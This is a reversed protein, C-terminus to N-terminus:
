QRADPLTPKYSSRVPAPFTAHPLVPVASFANELKVRGPLPSNAPLEFAGVLTLKSRSNFEESVRGLTCHRVGVSGSSVPRQRRSARRSSTNHVSTARFRVHVLNETTRRKQRVHKQHRHRKLTCASIWKGCHDLRHRDLTRVFICHLALVCLAQPQPQPQKGRITDPSQSLHLSRGSLASCRVVQLRQCAFYM